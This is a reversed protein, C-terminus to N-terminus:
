YFKTTLRGSFVHTAQRSRKKSINLTADFLIHVHRMNLFANCSLTRWVLARHWIDPLQGTHNGLFIHCFNKTVGVGVVCSSPYHDRYTVNFRAPSVILFGITEMVAALYKVSEGNWLWCTFIFPPLKIKNLGKNEMLFGVERDTLYVRNRRTIDFM